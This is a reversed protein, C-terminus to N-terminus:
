HIQRSRGSSSQARYISTLLFLTDQMYPLGLYNINFKLGSALKLGDSEKLLIVSMSHKINYFSRLHFFPPNYM